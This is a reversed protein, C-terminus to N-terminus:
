GGVSCEFGGGGREEGSGVGCRTLTLTWRRHVAGAQWLFVAAGTIRVIIGAVRENFQPHCALGNPKVDIRSDNKYALTSVLTSFRTPTWCVTSPLTVKREARTEHEVCREVLLGAKRLPGEWRDTV